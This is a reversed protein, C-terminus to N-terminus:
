EETWAQMLVNIFCYKMLTNAKFIDGDIIAKRFEEINGEIKIEGGKVRAMIECLLKKRDKKTNKYYTSTVYLSEWTKKEDCPHITFIKM